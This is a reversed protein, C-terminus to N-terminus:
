VLNFAAMGWAPVSIKADLFCSEVEQNNEIHDMHCTVSAKDLTNLHRNTQDRGNFMMENVHIAFADVVGEHLALTM